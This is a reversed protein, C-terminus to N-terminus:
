VTVIYKDVCKTSAVKRPAERIRLTPFYFDVPLRPRCGFMLYHPGYGMMASQTANNAHVIEALHGPWNAKKDEGLKGIMQMITQHSGEVLGNIKPHYPM